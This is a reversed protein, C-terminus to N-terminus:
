VEGLVHIAIEGALLPGAVEFAKAVHPQTMHADLDSQAEWEEVTVFTGPVSTSAFVDYRLCGADSRSSAALEALAPGAEDARAPDIPITAVVNLTM